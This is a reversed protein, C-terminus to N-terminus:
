AGKLKLVLFENKTYVYPLFHLGKVPPKGNHDYYTLRIHYENLWILKGSTSRKPLWAFRKKYDHQRNPQWNAGMM